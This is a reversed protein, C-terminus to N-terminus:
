VTREFNGNKKRMIKQKVSLINSFGIVALLIYLPVYCFLYRARAEFILEFLTLGVLSLMVIGIETNKKKLISFLSLLLVSMWISQVFNSWILYYKGTYDRNYYINRLLPSVVTNKEPLIESYFIGEGGWCFTGDNYNILTKCYMQKLFGKCGMTQLREKTKLLNMKTREESTEFSGSFIVDEEAWVGKAEPNMGMMLFHSIGYSKESDVQINLSNIANTSFFIACLIGIAVMILKSCFKKLLIRCDKKQFAINAIHILIIAITLIFTQPKIKYGMYSLFAIIFYKFFVGVMGNVKRLYTWLIATPFFLAVSDSYPISIWPSLGVLFLYIIYGFWALCISNKLSIIIDFLMFGTIACLISQFILIGFYGDGFGLISFFKIIKSFIYVIFLNNPYMSFYYTFEDMSDGNVIAMACSILTSVDWDTKFYYNYIICIQLILFLIGFLFVFTNKNKVCKSYFGISQIIKYIGLLVGEGALIILPLPLYEIKRPYDVSSFLLCVMIIGTLMIFFLFYVAILPLESLALEKKDKRM